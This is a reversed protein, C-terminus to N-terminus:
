YVVSWFKAKRQNVQGILDVRNMKLCPDAGFKQNFLNGAQECTWSRIENRPNWTVKGYGPLDTRGISNTHDIVRRCIGFDINPVELVIAVRGVTKGNARADWYNGCIRSGSQAQATGPLTIVAATAALALIVTRKFTRKYTM